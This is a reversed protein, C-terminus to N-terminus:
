KAAKPASKQERADSLNVINDFTATAKKKIFHTGAVYQDSTIKIGSHRLAKSVVAIDEGAEVLLTGYTHRLDHWTSVPLKNAAQFRQLSKKITDPRFLQGDANLCVFDSPVIKEDNSNRGNIEAMTCMNKESRETKLRLLEGRVFDSMAVVDNSYKTKVKRLIPRGDAMTYNKRIHIISNKFDIDIWRIALAEGRRLGHMVTLLVPFYLAHEQVRLAELLDAVKPGEYITSFHEEAQPPAAALAPNNDIVEAEIAFELMTRLVRLTSAVTEARPLRALKENEEKLKKAEEPYEQEFKAQKKPDAKIGKKSKIKTKRLTTVFGKVSHVTIDQVRMAGIADKIKRISTRYRSLTTPSLEREVCSAYWDDALDALILQHANEYTIGKNKKIITNIWDQAAAKTRFGSKQKTQRKGSQSRWFARAIYVKGKKVISM